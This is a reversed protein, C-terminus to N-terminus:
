IDRRAFLLTGVGALAAAIGACVAFGLGAQHIKPSLLLHDYYNPYAYALWSVSGSVSPVLFLFFWVGFFTALIVLLSLIPTRFQSGVLLALGCWVASIPLSVAYFRIGWSFTTAFSAEGRAVTLIWIILNMGLTILSVVSWLGFFKGVYYSTRRTRVAWYRVTRHQLDSSVSDFGTLAVLLPALWITLMLMAFLVYPAEALYKAMDADGYVKEYGQTQLVKLAEPDVDGFESRKWQEFKVLALTTGTGGLLSLASLVLGKASQLNKKLERGVILGVEAIPNV